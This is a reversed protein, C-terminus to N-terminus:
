NSKRSENYKTTIEPILTLIRQKHAPYLMIIPNEAVYKVAFEVIESIPLNELAYQHGKEFGHRYAVNTDGNKVFSMGNKAWYDYSEGSKQVESRSRQAAEAVTETKENSM